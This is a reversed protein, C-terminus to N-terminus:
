SLKTAFFKNPRGTTCDGACVAVAVKYNGPSFSESESPNAQIQWQIQYQGPAQGEEFEFDTIPEDDRSAPNIYLSLGGPGTANM